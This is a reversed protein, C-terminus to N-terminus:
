EAERLIRAARQRSVGLIVAMAAITEGDREYAESMAARLERKAAALEGELRRVEAAATEVRDLSVPKHEMTMPM